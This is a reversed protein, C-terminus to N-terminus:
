LNLETRLRAFEAQFEALLRAKEDPPLLGARVANLSVQELNDATFGFDSVLLEYERNLTTNFLPPDDSNVTVLVGADWLQRLPHAAYCPYVNLRVNSTPCVDCAIQHRRLHDILAPDEVARIGHQLRSPNLLRVVEWIKDPGCLEGSHPVRPLDAANAQEFSARFTEATGLCEDGALGLAICGRDRAALTIELVEDQLDPRDRVIDFIWCIRVGWEQAAADRGANLGELIAQWPLGSLHANSIITFTAEAYRCNQAAMSRGFEYAILRYDEPTRLCKLISIYVELFHGFDRFQYYDRLQAETMNGLPQGNRRALTLLVDPQISGELHVHLEAKPMRRAFARLTDTM